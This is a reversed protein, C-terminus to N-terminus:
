SLGPPPLLEFRATYALGALRCRLNTVKSLYIRGAQFYSRAQMVRGCVWKRYAAADQDFPNLGEELLVEHPINYYGEATDDLADRLMHTIHAATVALYRNTSQPSDQGHGIFYHMAETVAVALNESYSDLQIQNILKGRRDADFEMVRMMRDLYMFLGTDFSPDTKVLDKLLEEEASLGLATVGQYLDELLGRQRKIFALKTERSGEAGDLIDDVWRFYAYARFAHQVRDRDAFFRIMYYTQKSAQRTIAAALGDRETLDTYM